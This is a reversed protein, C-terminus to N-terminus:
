IFEKMLEYLLSKEETQQGDLVADLVKRKGDILKAIREEITGQALLYHVTVSDKQGIRHCRDEAQVLAGPTWPLELFAVNSAATLTLGVGAAQINGVFVRIKPNYQFEEVSRDRDAASVSGDIKVAIDRFESMLADIVFKHVAFVVLKQDSELFETIWEIAAVMKGAVALQKLGEIETLVAAASAKVAAAQGKTDRVFSIFNREADKYTERNILEIPVYSYLKDPLDKLVDSKKRRLMITNTLKQHLEETNTAGNVELGFRTRRAGCYRHAFNWYNPCVTPDILNIANFAEIPRNVIPTGSLGIIHPIHKALRKVAKTRKAANNKICHIEDMILVQPNWSRLTPEWYHIIDYNIIIIDSQNVYPTTSSVIEACPDPMWMNAEKLWNLKLSAPVVVIAPRLEPHLQLYALAQVTKGLGMEDAILARGGKAEIFSVGLNQFPFLTGKLGPIKIETVDSLTVKSRGLISQLRDDLLWGAKVLKGLEETDIPITWYKDKPDFSNYKRGKLERVINLDDPNYPFHIKCISSGRQDEALTVTKGTAKPAPMSQITNTNIIPIEASKVASDFAQLADTAVSGFMKHDLPTTIQEESPLIEKICSKPVWSDIKMDLVVLKLKELNEITYGGVANWDWYHAGCEPGIGLLVSVPHTLTRGCYCCVGMKQTELTGKGFLYAARPTERLVNAAFYVPLNSKKAFTANLKYIKTTSEM